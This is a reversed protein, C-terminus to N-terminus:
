LIVMKATYLKVLPTVIRLLLSEEESAQNTEELGLLRGADLVFLQAGRTDVEMRALTQMHLPHDSILKGFAKRKLSYDRALLLIKRMANASNIANHIRTITLMPIIGAVGRGEESMLHAVTGDLLLEATPVQKTGLKDKLKQIEIGNLSGDPKRTELYFMSIGRTGKIFGENEDVIRALTLTVDADTASSFWKYGHLKFTGDAQPVALTETGDAVDSGGRRETMWQGSTWFKTPDRSMLRSMANAFVPHSLTAPSKRFFQLAGDTMAVPCWSLGSSAGFLLNKAVQHVRSWPGHKNEYPIAVIGEEAAIAKQKKWADSTILEDVRNGWADFPLHQPLNRDCEIGLAHVEAGVRAGFRELDPVIEQYVDHPLVRQLYVQLTVDEKFVNGLVPKQQFFSGRAAKKFPITETHQHDVLKHIKPTEKAVSSYSDNIASGRSMGPLGVHHFGYLRPMLAAKIGRGHLITYAWM